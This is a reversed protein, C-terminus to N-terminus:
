APKHSQKVAVLRLRRYDAIWQNGDYMQSRLLSEVEQIVSEIATENLGIFLNSGFMKLWNALGQAGDNLPTPRDILAAFTVDLGHSELLHAYEGISPFYWPCLKKQQRVTEVAGVIAQVNGKGGFEVVLKGGPKLANAMAQVAQEPPKVWHLAANSFIGDVPQAVVFNRADAIAFSLQPYQQQAKAVMAADSDIGSVVAGTEALAHTLEGTGCGLDLIHQGSQPSLLDILAAGYEWVFSHQNQYRDTDWIHHAYVTDSAM